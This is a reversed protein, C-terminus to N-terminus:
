AGHPVRPKWLPPSLRPGAHPAEKAPSRADLRVACMLLGAFYWYYVDATVNFVVGGPLHALFFLACSTALARSLPTRLRFVQELSSVVLYARLFFFFAFGIPGLELMIRGPEDEVVRGELWSYPEVGRTVAEAMQHTAGIGYGILGSDGLVRFPQVLPALLRESTDTSGAAREYFAGVADAGVHNVAAAVLGLGLLIRGLVADRRGERALSLWVYIPFLLAITFVPGRSGTMFLSAIAFALAAYAALNGRARWRTAALVALALMVIALLYSSYGTIYSFTSTVRVHTSSGFTTAGGVQQRAYANIPADPSSMFQALGLLGTPIALLLYARLRAHLEASSSFAAPLVWAVPAYFFYAKFGLIGVLPSPLNPNFVQLAGVAASLVLMGTLLSPVRVRPRRPDNLFGLYAGLLLLDKGFYVLDQAGPFVWKRLAGELVLLVLAAQVAHRWRRYAWLVGIAALALVLSRPNMM